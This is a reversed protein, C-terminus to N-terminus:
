SIVVTNTNWFPLLETRVDDWQLGGNGCGPQPICLIGGRSLKGWHRHNRRHVIEKYSDVILSPISKKRWDHKTPFTIIRYEHFGCPENTGQRLQEGLEAPLSPFRDAAEKAIGKGMVAEGNSKTMGNTTIAIWYGKDHLEWLDGSAEVVVGNDPSRPELIDACDWLWPCNPEVILLVKDGPTPLPDCSCRHRTLSIFRLLGLEHDFFRFYFWDGHIRVCVGETITM